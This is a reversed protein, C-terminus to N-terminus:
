EDMDEEVDDDREDTVESLSFDINDYIQALTITAGVGQLEIVDNMETFEDLFWRRASVQHYYTVHPEAQEVLLYDVFTPITKYRDFKRTRDNMATSPSLVEALLIPNTITNRRNNYFYPRSCVVTVDPYTYLGSTGVRVRQDSSLATCRGVSAANIAAGIRVSIANHNFTGGSMLVIEGKFFEHKEKSEEEFAFYEDETYFRTAEQVM